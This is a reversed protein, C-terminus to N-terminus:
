NLFDVSIDLEEPIICYKVIEVLLWQTSTCIFNKQELNLDWVLWLHFSPIEPEVDAFLMLMFDNFRWIIQSLERLVMAVSTKVRLASLKKESAMTNIMYFLCARMKLLPIVVQMNDADLIVSVAAFM